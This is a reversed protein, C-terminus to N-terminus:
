YTWENEKNKIKQKQENTETKIDQQGPLGIGTGDCCNCCENINTLKNHQYGKGSCCPCVIQMYGSTTNHERKNM